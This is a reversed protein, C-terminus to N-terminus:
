GTGEKKAAQERNVLEQGEVEVEVKVRLEPGLPASPRM